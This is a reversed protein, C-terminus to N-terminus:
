QEYTYLTNNVQTNDFDVTQAGAWGGDADLYVATVPYSGYNAQVTSYPEYSIHGVLETDEVLTTPSALNGTNAWVGTPCQTWATSAPGIYFFLKVTPGAPTTVWAEFRPSGGWCSGLVFKYDTSLNNLQGITLGSPIALNVAGWGSTATLPGSSTVEAGTQSKHGPHVLTADAVLQYSGGAAQKALSTSAFALSISAAVSLFAVFRRV